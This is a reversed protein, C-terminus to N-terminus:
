VNAYEQLCYGVGRITKINTLKLKKRLFHIYVDISTFDAESNYGWLKTMICDRTVVQGANIMLLELLSSEKITLPYTRHDKTVENRLPNLALGAAQIVEGVAGKGARKTLVKLRALLEEAFFPKVLYDDAGANLGEVRDTPADMATLFLVPTEMGWRRIEKLMTLGDLHPLMRDLIIIDYEGLSAMQIGKEGDIAQDVHYGVERLLHSLGELLKGDDEVLLLNMRVGEQM